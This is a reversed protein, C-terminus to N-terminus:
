RQGRTQKLREAVADISRKEEPQVPWPSEFSVFQQGGIQARALSSGEDLRFDRNSADVFSPQQRVNGEPLPLEAEGDSAVGRQGLNRVNDWFANEILTTKGQSASYPGKSGIDGMFVANQCFAFINHQITPRSAGLVQMGQTIGGKQEAHRDGVFTNSQITDENQFWCSIGSHYFLNNAVVANTKGSAYIGSVATSHFVNGEITPSCGDYRIGHWGTGHIRCRTVRIAPSPSRISLGSYGNNRIDSDSIEFQGNESVAVHVGKGWSNAILCKTLRVHSHGTVSLGIGPSELIVCHEMQVDADLIDIAASNSFGGKRVPESRLFSINRITVAEADKVILVPSAGYVRQFAARLKDRTETDLELSLRQLGALLEPSAQKSGKSASVIRCREWGVGELTLSKNIAVAENWVGPGIRVTSDAESKDVAEQITTYDGTGDASVEVVLPNGQATLGCALTVLVLVLTVFHTRLTRM